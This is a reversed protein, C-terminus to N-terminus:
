NNKPNNKLRLYELHWEKFTAQNVKPINYVGSQYWGSSDGGYFYFYSELNNYVLEEKIGKSKLYANVQRSSKPFQDDISNIRRSFHKAAIKKCVLNNTEFSCKDHRECDNCLEIKEM